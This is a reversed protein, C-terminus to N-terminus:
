ALGLALAARRALYKSYELALAAFGAQNPVADVTIAVNPPLVRSLELLARRMHAAATVVRLSTAGRQAVWSATEAANSRTDIAGYGLDTTALRSLPVGAAEAIMAATTAPAVGSILMREAADAELVQLGRALRGQGGTLVVVVDTRQAIPAPSPLSLVFWLFGAGWGLALAAILRTLM